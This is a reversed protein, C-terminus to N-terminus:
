LLLERPDCNLSLAIQYLLDLTINAEGREIRGLYSRDINSHLAFAEQSFGKAKRKERILRGVEARLSKM